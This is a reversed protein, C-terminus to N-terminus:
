PVATARDEPNGPAPPNEDQVRDYEEEKNPLPRAETTATDRPATWAYRIYDRRKQDLQSVVGEARLGFAEVFRQGAAFDALVDTQVRHLGRRAIAAALRQRAHIMVSKLSARLLPTPVLWIEAVGPWYLTLGFAAVPVGDVRCTYAEDEARAAAYTDLEELTLPVLRRAIMERVDDLALLAVTVEPM